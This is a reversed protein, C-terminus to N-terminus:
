TGGIGVVRQPLRAHSCRSSDDGLVRLFGDNYGWSWCAWQQAETWGIAYSCVEGAYIACIRQGDLAKIPRPTSLVGREARLSDGHGLCDMTPRNTHHTRNIRTTSSLWSFVVGEATLVITYEWALAVSVVRHRKLQARTTLDLIRDPSVYSCHFTHVKPFPPTACVPFIPPFSPHTLSAEGYAAHIHTAHAGIRCWGM